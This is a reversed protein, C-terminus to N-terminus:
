SSNMTFLRLLSLNSSSGNGLIFLLTSLHSINSAAGNFDPVVSQHASHGRGNMVTSVCLALATSTVYILHM